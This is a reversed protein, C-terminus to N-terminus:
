VDRSKIFNLWFLGNIIDRAIETHDLMSAGTRKFPLCSVQTKDQCNFVFVDDHARPSFEIM